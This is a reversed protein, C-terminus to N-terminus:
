NGPTAHFTTKSLRGERAERGPRAPIGILVRCIAFLSSRGTPLPYPHAPRPAVRSVRRQRRGIGSNPAEM